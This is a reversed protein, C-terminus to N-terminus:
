IFRELPGLSTLKTVIDMDYDHIHASTSVVIVERLVGGAPTIVRENFWHSIACINAWVASGYDHSRFVVILTTDGDGTHQVQFWNFCPRSDTYRFSPNYLVGVNRTDFMETSIAQSLKNKAVTMQDIYSVKVMEPNAKDVQEVCPQRSILNPYTYVFNHPNEVEQDYTSMFEKVKKGDWPFHLPTEGDLIRTIATGYLQLIAITHTAAKPQLPNGFVMPHGNDKIQKAWEIYAKDISDTSILKIPSKKM